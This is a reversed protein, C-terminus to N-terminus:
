LMSIFSNGGIKIIYSCHVLLMIGYTAAHFDVPSSKEIFFYNFYILLTIKTNVNVVRRQSQHPWFSQWATASTKSPPSHTANIILSSFISGLQSCVLNFSFGPFVSTINAPFSSSKFSVTRGVQWTLQGLQCPDELIRKLSQFNHQIYKPGIEM